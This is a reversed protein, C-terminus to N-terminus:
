ILVIQNHKFTIIFICEYRVCVCMCISLYNNENIRCQKLLCVLIILFVVIKCQKRNIRNNIRIMTFYLPQWLTVQINGISRLADDLHLTDYRHVATLPKATCDFKVLLYRYLNGYCGLYVHITYEVLSCQQKLMVTYNDIIYLDTNFCYKDFISM